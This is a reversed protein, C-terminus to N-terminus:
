QLPVVQIDPSLEAKLVREIARLTGTTAGPCFSCAGQYRVTLVNNEFSILQIDGGDMQLYPRITRDLISNIQKLEETLPASKAPLSFLHPNHEDIKEIIITNVLPIMEEWNGTGDQTISIIKESFTIEQVHPITFLSMGLPNGLCEEANKYSIEEGAKVIRDLVFQRKNPNSPTQISIDTNKM